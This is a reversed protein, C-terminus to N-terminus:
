EEGNGTTSGVISGSTTNGGGDGENNGGGGNNKPQVYEPKEFTFPEASCILIGNADLATVQWTFTGGLTIAEIYQDRYTLQTEFPVVTGNPLTIELLYKDAGSIPEWSFTIKGVNPLVAENEPTLLQFCFPEETAPVETPPETVEPEAPVENAPPETAPPETAPVDTSPLETAEVKPLCSVLFTGLSALMIKLFDRRSTKNSKMQQDKM